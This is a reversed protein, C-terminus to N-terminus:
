GRFPGVPYKAALLNDALERLTIVNVDDAEAVLQAFREMPRWNGIDKTHNEIIVPVVPWGSTRARRRANRLMERMQPVSLMSLDSTRIQHIASGSGDGTDDNSWEQAGYNVAYGAGPIPTDNPRELWAKALFGLRARLLTHGADTIVRHRLTARPRTPTGLGTGDPPPRVGHDAFSHTPVCVLPQPEPSRKRADAMVPAYPLFPEELHRYDVQVHATRFLAGDVISMDFVFDREALVDLPHPGPAICWSGSRFSVCRYTPDLGTLLRELYSACRDVMEAVDERSYDLLSWSGDLRWAGEVYAADTWQPHIHLQVDHGRRFVDCVTAEWEAALEGLEPFREAAELHYLQQMVEVNFSGRLGYQDYIDTLRRITAFQIARMNGSGNGRLEWDDTLVVDLTPRPAM